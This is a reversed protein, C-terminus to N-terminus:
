RAEKVCKNSAKKYRDVYFENKDGNFTIEWYLGNVVDTSVLAKWNQLTKCKWVVYFDELNTELPKYVDTSRLDDNAMKKAIYEIDLM